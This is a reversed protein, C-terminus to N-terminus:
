AAESRMALAWPFLRPAVFCLVAWGALSTVMLGGFAKTISSELPAQGILAATALGMGLPGVCRPGDVFWRYIRGLTLGLLLIPAFMLVPGFDIYSEAVYGISISTGDAAGAVGLRTYKNTRDSDNIASKDPFLLRPAFPREIADLWIAGNEYPTMAPVKDLVVSFFEVYGIRRLLNEEATKLARGDLAGVLEFLKFVADAYGVVATQGSRGGRLYARYDNKVATWTLGLAVVSAALVSLACLAKASVRAGSAVVAFATMFLVTKFDSFYGGVGLGFEIAFAALFYAAGAGRQTLTAFALMFFAAWRLGALALAPQSITEYAHAASQLFGAAVLAGLYLAFWWFVPRSSAIAKAVNAARARCAGAGVRMGFGLAILALLSLMTALAVDGHYKSLDNVPEDRWAAQFTMMSAQAWQYLFIFLLIPPERPRWLLLGGIALATASLLTLWVNPGVGGLFVIAGSALWLPTRGPGVDDKVEILSM